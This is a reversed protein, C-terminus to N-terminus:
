AAGESDRYVVEGGVMTLLCRMEPLEEAPIALPDRDWVVLDADYGPLLRGSRDATGAALAPGETYARLADIAGVANEPYWEEDGGPDAGSLQERSLRRLAALLGWRPDPTEVPADSGFALTVGAELLPRFPYAGQSREHGWHREAAPIDSLLHAPQMSAIVGSRAVRPAWALPCLQLHEIRHPLAAPSSVSGLVELALEVAADGIAHVTSAIGADAARRVIERFEDTALTQVGRDNETGRYPERLWATRSGLAGDLFMKVGGIRIWEGEAAGPPAPSRWGSRMGVEIMADLHFLPVHQLVRLRLRDEQRLMEFDALGGPEVSHIGTIGMRHLERQASELAAAVEESTPEPLHRMVLERAGELLVGTPEGSGADRLIRGDAPDPTAASIGARALAASNVWVAHLDHSELLAPRDPVVESRARGPHSVGGLSQCGVGARDGM